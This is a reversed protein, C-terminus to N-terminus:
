YLDAGLIDENTITFDENKFFDVVSLFSSDRPLRDKISQFSRTVEQIDMIPNFQYNIEVIGDWLSISANKVNDIFKTRSRKLNLVNSLQHIRGRLVPSSSEQFEAIINDLNKEYTLLREMAAVSVQKDEDELLNILAAITKYSKISNSM